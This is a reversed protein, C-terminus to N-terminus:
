ESANGTSDQNPHDSPISIVTGTDSQSVTGKQGGAQPFHPETYYTLLWKKSEKSYSFNREILFADQYIIREKIFDGQQERYVKFDENKLDIPKLLVWDEETWVKESGDGKIGALPFEIRQYQFLTDEHFKKYFAEFDERGNADTKIAAGGCAALLFVSFCSCVFLLRNFM